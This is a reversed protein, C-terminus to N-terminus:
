RWLMVFIAPSKAVLPPRYLRSTAWGILICCQHYVVLQIKSIASIGYHGPWYFDQIANDLSGTKLSMNSNNNNNNNTKSDDDGNDYFWQQM